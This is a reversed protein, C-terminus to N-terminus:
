GVVVPSEWFCVFRRVVYRKRGGIGVSEGVRELAEPEAWILERCGEIGGIIGALLGHAKMDSIVNVQQPTAEVIMGEKVLKLEALASRQRLSFLADPFGMTGGQKNEIWWVADATNDLWRRVDAEKSFKKTAM